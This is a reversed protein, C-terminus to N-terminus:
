DTCWEGNDFRLTIIRNFKRRRLTRSHFFKTNRDGLQLWDCRAKLRWLLDKHDLVNELEDRIELEKGALYTSSFHELTKQINNLSRMLNRKRTGLFGYINRNWDKAFFTFNNLSEVM